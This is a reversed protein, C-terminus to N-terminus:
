PTGAPLRESRAERGAPARRQRQYSDLVRYAVIPRGRYAAYDAIFDAHAAYPGALHGPRKSDAFFAYGGESQYVALWHRRLTQGQVSVPEFEIMLYAARAVPDVSRLLEVAFRALDVCVGRPSAFFQAPEHIAVPTRGALRASESLALARERDYDFHAGIWANIEVAGRWQAAAAEYSPPAPIAAMAPATRRENVPADSLRRWEAESAWGTQLLGGCSTATAILISRRATM